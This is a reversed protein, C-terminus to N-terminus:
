DKSETEIELSVLSLEKGQRIEQSPRDCVPCRLSQVGPLEREAGCAPCYIVVPLPHVILRSGALPTEEAAIDYGFQLADEVVGALAGVDVHVASVRSAGAARAAESAREVLSYAISLEHVIVPV